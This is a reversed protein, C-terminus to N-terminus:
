HTNAHAAEIAPLLPATVGLRRLTQASIPQPDGCAAVVHPLDPVLMLAGAKADPWVQFTLGDQTVVDKCESRGDADTADLAERAYIAQLTKSTILGVTTGDGASDTSVSDVLSKPLLRTWNTPAGTELSYTLAIVGSDPHAGGCDYEYTIAVSFYAPGRMAVDVTREMDFDKGAQQHCDKIMGKWNSDVKALAANIRTTAPTIPAAIRPLGAMGKALPPPRTMSVTQAAAPLSLLLGAFLAAGAITPKM